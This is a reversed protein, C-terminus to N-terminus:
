LEFLGMMAEANAQITYPLVPEHNIERNNLIAKLINLMNEKGTAIHWNKIEAEMPRVFSVVQVGAYLAELCVAGFGEYESTHLFIKSRQMMALVEAHPLVGTLTVNATLGMVDIQALLREKEPGGGCIVAKVDPLITKLLSVMELFIDYQKLSILSGAGLLDVDREVQDTKFLTTDIGVPIIHGPLVGHNKNFERAIFDSLAILATAAPKIKTVYKNGAKADQGLVWCYHPLKYKKAFANGIYACKGMWFSLLGIIQHQKNLKKLVLWVKIGTLKRYVSGKDKGGFSIVKVGNWDYEASFFPYIFTLVIINLEPEIENLAKVFIQQPPICTSDAENAPFGPTLIVLTQQKNNEM